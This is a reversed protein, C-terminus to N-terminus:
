CKLSVEKPNENDIFTEFWIELYLLGFIIYSFDGIGNRDDQIMQNVQEFKFIGRKEIREQSLYEDIYAKLDNKLWTRLPAGFGTKSRYIIKKPLFDEAVKKLIWKGINNKQKLTNDIKSAVESNSISLFPVRVEVGESM